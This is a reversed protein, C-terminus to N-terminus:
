EGMLGCISIYSSGDSKFLVTLFCLADPPERAGSERPRSPLSVRAARAAGEWRRWGGRQRRLGSGSITRGAPFAAAPFVHRRRLVGEAHSATRRVCPPLRRVSRGAPRIRDRRVRIRGGRHLIQGGAPWIPLPTAAARCSPPRGRARPSPSAALRRAARARPSLPAALHHAAELERRRRRPLVAPSRTSARSPPAVELERCRPRSEASCSAAAAAAVARCRPESSCGPRCAASASRGFPQQHRRRRDHGGHHEHCNAATDALLPPTPSAVQHCLVVACRNASASAPM